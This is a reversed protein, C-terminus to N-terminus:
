EWIRGKRASKSTMLINVEVMEVMSEKQFQNL